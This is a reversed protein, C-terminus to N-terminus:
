TSKSKIAKNWKKKMTMYINSNNKKLIINKVMFVEM